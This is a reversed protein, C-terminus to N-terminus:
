KHSEFIDFFMGENETPAVNQDASCNCDFKNTAQATSDTGYTCKTAEEGTVESPMWNINAGGASGDYAREGDEM